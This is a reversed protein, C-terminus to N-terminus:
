EVVVTIGSAFDVIRDVMPRHDGEFVYGAIRRHAAILCLLPKGLSVAWARMTRVDRLSPSAWRTPHTHLFGQVDGRGEERKLVWPANFAVTDPEGVAHRCRRLM